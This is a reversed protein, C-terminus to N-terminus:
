TAAPMLSVPMPSSVMATGRQSVVTSTDRTMGINALADIEAFSELTGTRSFNLFKLDVVRSQHRWGKPVLHRM